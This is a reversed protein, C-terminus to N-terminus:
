RVDSGESGPEDSPGLDEDTMFVYSFFFCLLICVGWPVIIGWFVWDPFGWVFTLSDIKRDYGFAACYSVSYILATAWTVFVFIAERRASRYVPDDANPRMAAEGKTGDNQM